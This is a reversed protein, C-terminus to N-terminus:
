LSARYASQNIRLEQPPPPPPPEGWDGGLKRLLLLLLLRLIPALPPPPTLTQYPSHKSSLSIYPPVSIYILGDGDRATVCTIGSGHDWRANTGVHVLSLHGLSAYTSPSNWRLIWTPHMPASRLSVPPLVSCNSYLLLPYMPYAEIPLWRKHCCCHSIVLTPHSPPRQWIRHYVCLFIKTRFRLPWHHFQWCDSVVPNCDNKHEGPGPPHLVRSTTTNSAYSFLTYIYQGNIGWQISDVWAYINKEQWICLPPVYGYDLYQKFSYKLITYLLARSKIRNKISVEGQTRLGLTIGSGLGLKGFKRLRFWTSIVRIEGPQKRMLAWKHWIAASKM